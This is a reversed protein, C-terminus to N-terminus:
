AQPGPDAQLRAVLEAVGDDQRLPPLVLGTALGRYRELLVDALEDYRGCVVLTDLVEDTIVGALAAWDERRTLERLREPLDPWGHLELTPRYAPTSYLFALLRRQREREAAVEADDRGVAVTAAVVLGVDSPERGAAAAGAELNPLMVERLYRPDSNTPHTVLGRAREGALRCMGPNVAGLWTPPATTEGDPGPNFYPQLRTLRYSDGEHHVPGGSAFAAYLADLAELYDRMRATPESWPMGYRDEINQRIQTGLGLEFRGGSFRALDWAAYATLTPSRVFALTVATRVTIRETHEAALLSVALSDHVTEAVQLGDFGLREVRAAYSGVDALPLQPDMGAYVRVCAGYSCSKSM